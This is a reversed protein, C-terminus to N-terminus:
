DPAIFIAAGMSAENGARIVVDALRGLGPPVRVNIQTVGSVLGPSPGAYLVEAASGAIMASCCYTNRAEGSIAGDVADLYYGTGTAWLAVITGPQAPNASSNLTGDQNVAAAGGDANRFIQPATPIVILPFAPLAVGNSTVDLRASREGNLGFPVAALIQNASAALVPAPLGGIAVAPERGIGPGLIHILEGPAARGTLDSVAANSIGAVRPTSPEGPTIASVIGGAGATHVTGGADVALSQAVLHGPFRASYLLATGDPKLGALFEEGDTWGSANPFEPSSTTGSVWVNGKADVAVTRAEDPSKGGLYTAWVMGSGAANLKAVFADMQPGTGHPAPYVPGSYVPQAVGPTAPFNEDNTKGALIAEGTEAVALAYLINGPNALPSLVDNRAGLYTLYALGGGDARFKAAFAGIGDRRMAGSTAPLDTTNTNGAIIMNGMADVGLGAAATSRTSLFCSSGAGCQVASGTIVGALLIRDAAPALKAVFAGSRSALGMSPTGFTLPPSSPFDSARTEGAVYINGAGDVTVANVSSPGKTGGFYTSAMTQSGDPSLKVLFGTTGGNEPRVAETQLAGRLPFNASSTTGGIYINGAADLALARAQDNGKGGFTVRFLLNGRQDLKVVFVDGLPTADPLQPGILRSGAVYTGGNKDVAIAAVRYSNSDGIYTTYDGAGWVVFPVALVAPMGCRFTMECGKSATVAM